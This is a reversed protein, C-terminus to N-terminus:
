ATARVRSYQTLLMGSAHLVHDLQMTRLDIPAADPSRRAIRPGSGGELSPSVTLCLADLVDAEILAGLLSPGGECHMQPLGRAVLADVLLRPEVTESGCDVVDAVEALARRRGADASKATLVLPRVPSETFFDSEPDVSLRGTVVAVAPHPSLGNAVRWARTAESVLPGAYGEAKVTGSAVVIVDCLQRVLDFVKKDAPGGLSGSLGAATVSGDISAVFNARLRPVARDRPALLALLADDDLDAILVPFIQGLPGEGAASM